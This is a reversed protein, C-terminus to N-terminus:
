RLMGIVTCPASDINEIMLPCIFITKLRDLYRSSLNLDELLFVPDGRYENDKLFIQHTKRGLGRNAYSSVSISDIGVCRINEFKSRIYDAVEPSVGPNELRYIGKNRYRWRWFGTKLLLIDCKKLNKEYSSLDEIKIM